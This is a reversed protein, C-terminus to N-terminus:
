ACAALRWDGRVRSATAFASFPLPRQPLAEECYVASGACTVVLVLSAGVCTAVLAPAVCAVSWHLRRELAPSAGISAANWHQRRELTPPTGRLTSLAGVCAASQRM